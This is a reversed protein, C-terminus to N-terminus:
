KSSIRGEKYTNIDIFEVILKEKIQEIIQKWWAIFFLNGDIVVTVSKQLSEIDWM